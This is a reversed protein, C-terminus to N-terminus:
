NNEYNVKRKANKAMIALANKLFELDIDDFSALLTDNWEKLIEILIDKFAIAKSTLNFIFSRSDKPNDGRIVYGKKELAQMTRTMVSKDYHLEDILQDQSKGDYDQHIDHLIQEETRGDHGYLALLVMGEATNLDYKKLSNKLYIKFYKDVVMMNQGILRYHIEM